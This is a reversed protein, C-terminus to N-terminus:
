VYQLECIYSLVLQLRLIIFCISPEEKYWYDEFKAPAFECLVLVPTKETTYVRKM